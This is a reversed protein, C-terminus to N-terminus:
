LATRARARARARRGGDRAMARRGGDGRWRGGAGTGRWRERPSFAAARDEAAGQGMGGQGMGGQGMGGPGMGVPGMPGPGMLGKALQADSREDTMMSAHVHRDTEMMRMCSAAITLAATLTHSSSPAVVSSDGGGAQGGGAQGGGEHAAKSAAHPISGGSDLGSVLTSRGGSGSGRIATSASADAAAQPMLHMHEEQLMQEKLHKMFLDMVVQQSVHQRSREEGSGVAALQMWAGHAEAATRSAAQASQEREVQMAEALAEMTAHHQEEAEPLSLCVLAPWSAHINSPAATFAARTTFMHQGSPMLSFVTGGLWSAVRRDANSLVHAKWPARPAAARLEQELRTSFGAAQSGGGVLVVRELLAGRVSVDALAVVRMIVDHVGEVGNLGLLSPDFLGACGLTEWAADPHQARLHQGGLPHVVAADIAPRGEYIACIFTSSEGINLLIGTDFGGAGGTNYLALLPASAIHVASVSPSAAFLASAARERTSAPADPAVSLLVALAPVEAAAEELTKILQARWLESDPAAGTIIDMHEPDDAWGFRWQSAGADLVFIEPNEHM